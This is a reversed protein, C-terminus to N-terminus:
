GAHTKVTIIPISQLNLSQFIFVSSLFQYINSKMICIFAEIYPTSTYLRNFHMVGNTNLVSLPLREYIVLLVSRTGVSLPRRGECGLTLNCPGSAIAAARCGRAFGWASGAGCVGATRTGPCPRVPRSAPRGPEHMLPSGWPQWCCVPGASLQPARDSHHPLPWRPHLSSMSEM